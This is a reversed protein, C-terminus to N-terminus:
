HDGELFTAWENIFQRWRSRAECLYWDWDNEASKKEAAQAAAILAPQTIVAQDVGCDAIDLDALLSSNKSHNYVMVTPVGAALSLTAGHYRQTLVFSADTQVLQRAGKWDPADWLVTALSKKKMLGFLHGCVTRDDVEPSTHFPLFVIRWGWVTMWDLFQALERATREAVLFSQMDAGYLGSLPYVNPIVYLKRGEGARALAPSRPTEPQFSVDPVLSANTIGAQQLHTLSVEDRVWWRANLSRLKTAFAEETLSSPILNVNVFAIPKGSRKLRDLGDGRFAWFDPLIIGGGGIVFADAGQWAAGGQANGFSRVTHRGGLSFLKGLEVEMLDDGANNQSFWGFHNVVM